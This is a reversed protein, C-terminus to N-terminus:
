LGLCVLDLIEGAAIGLEEALERRASAFVGPATPGVVDAPEVNGGCVHFYGPYEFVQESRRQVVIRGDSTVVAASVGPPNALAERGYMSALEPHRLNTGVFTRYDTSGLDLTLTSDDASWGFLRTMAGPFLERGRAAAEITAATWTEAIQCEVEPLTALRQ